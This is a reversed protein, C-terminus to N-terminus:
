GFTLFSNEDYYAIFQYNKYTTLANKRFKVTNVSNNSWGLGIKSYTNEKTACGLFLVCLM